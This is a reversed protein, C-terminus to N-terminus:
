HVRNDTGPQWHTQFSELGLRGDVWRRAAKTLRVSMVGTDGARYIKSLEDAFGDEGEFEM